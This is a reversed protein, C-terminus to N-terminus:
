KILVISSSDASIQAKLMKKIQIWYRNPLQWPFVADSLICHLTFCLDDPVHFERLLFKHLDRENSVNSISSGSENNLNFSM